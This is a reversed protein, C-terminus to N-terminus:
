IWYRYNWYRTECLAGPHGSERSQVMMELPEVNVGWEEWLVEM